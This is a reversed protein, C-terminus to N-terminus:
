VTQPIKIEKSVSAPAGTAICNPPIDRTVVSNAGIISGKGVRVGALISVNEGIWVNEEIVVPGKSSLRRQFPPLDHGQFDPRGHNHDTILVNSGVLVNDHIEIRSIAGIHTNLQLCVNDGIVIQPSFEDGAWETIAELRLGPGAVFNEGIKIRDANVLYVPHRTHIESLKRHFSRSFYRNAAIDLIETSPKYLLHGIRRIAFKAAREFFNLFSKALSRLNRRLVPVLVATYFEKYQFSYRFINWLGRPTAKWVHFIYPIVGTLASRYVLRTASPSYGFLRECETLLQRLNKSFVTYADYGGCNGSRAFVLPSMAIAVNNSSGAAQLAIAAPVLMGGFHKTVFKADYIDRRVVILSAFTIMEGLKVLYGDRDSYAWESHSPRDHYESLKIDGGEAILSILGPNKGEKIAKLICSVADSFPLDDDCLIWVYTGNAKEICTAMNADLGLNEVQRYYRVNSVQKEFLAPTGDTSANDCVLLETEKTLQPVTAELTQSLLSARNYTPIAITLLIPNEAPSM